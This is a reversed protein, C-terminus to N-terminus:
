AWGFNMEGRDFEIQHDALEFKAEGASNRNGGRRDRSTAETGMGRRGGRASVDDVDSGFKVM